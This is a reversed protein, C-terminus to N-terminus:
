VAIRMRGAACRSAIYRSRDSKGPPVVVDGVRAPRPRHPDGLEAFPAVLDVIEVLFIPAFTVPRASGTRWNPPLAAFVEEGDDVPHLHVARSSMRAGLKEGREVEIAVPPSRTPRSETRTNADLILYPLSRDCWRPRANCSVLM